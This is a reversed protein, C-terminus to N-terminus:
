RPAPKFRSYEVIELAHLHFDPRRPYLRISRTSYGLLRMTRRWDLEVLDRNEPWSLLWFRDPFENPSRPQAEVCPTHCYLNIPGANFPWDWAYVPPHPTSQLDKAVRISDFRASESRMAITYPLLVFSAWPILWLYARRHSTSLMLAAPILSVLFYRYFFYRLGLFPIQALLFIAVPPALATFAWLLQRKDRNKWALWALYALAALFAAGAATHIWGPGIRSFYRLFGSLTPKQIWSLQSTVGGDLFRSAVFAGWPILTALAAASPRWRERFICIAALLYLVGFYHSWVTWAAAVFICWAPLRYELFCLLAAVGLFLFAYGRAEQSYHIFWANSAILTAALLHGHACLAALTAAGAAISLWRLSLLPDWGLSLVLKAAFYHLPPHVSDRRLAEWFESWPLSAVRLTFIEDAWYAEQDLRFAALTLFYLM